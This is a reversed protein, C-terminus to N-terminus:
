ELAIEQSKTGVWAGLPPSWPALMFQDHVARRRSQAIMNPKQKRTVSSTKVEPGGKTRHTVINFSAIIQWLKELRDEEGTLGNGQRNGESQQRRHLLCERGQEGM